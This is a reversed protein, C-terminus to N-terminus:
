IFLQIFVQEYYITAIGYWALYSRPNISLASEYSQLAMSFDDIYTYEHGLLIFSYLSYPNIEIARKLYKVAKVHDKLLSYYNGSVIWSIESLPEYDLLTNTLISLEATNNKHWYSTSLKDCGELHYPSYQSIIYKNNQVKIM